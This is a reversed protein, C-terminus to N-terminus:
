RGAASRLGPVKRHDKELDILKISLSEVCAKEAHADHGWGYDARPKYWKSTQVDDPRLMRDFGIVAIEKADLKDIALFIACLGTSPKRKRASFRHFYEVWKPQSEDLWLWFPHSGRDYLHSRACIYDTRTGFHQEEMAHPYDRDVIGKTLGNKLRVVTMTDIVSGLGSLVSPGHGVIVVM